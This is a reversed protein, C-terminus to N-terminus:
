NEFSYITITRNSNSKIDIIADNNIEYAMDLPTQGNCNESYLDADTGYWLGNSGAVMAPDSRKRNWHM